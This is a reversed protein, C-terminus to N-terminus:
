CPNVFLRVRVLKGTKFELQATDNTGTTYFLTQEGNQDREPNGKGLKKRIGELDDGVHISPELLVEPSTIILNAGSRGM